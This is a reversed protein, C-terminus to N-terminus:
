KDKKKNNTFVYDKSDKGDKNLASNLAKNIGYVGVAKVTQAVLDAAVNKALKDVVDDKFKNTFDKGRSKKEPVVEAVPEKMLDRLKNELNIRDIKAQIEVDTMKDVSLENNALKKARDEAEKQKDIKAQRAKALADARQKKKLEEIDLQKMKDSETAQKRYKAIEAATRENAKRRLAAERSKAKSAAKKAAQVREFNTKTGYRRKGAATLSGDPNQYRRVGWKMGKTGHHYLEHNYKEVLTMEDM